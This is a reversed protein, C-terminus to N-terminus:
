EYWLPMLKRIRECRRRGVPWSQCLQVYYEQESLEVKWDKEAISEDQKKNLGTGWYHIRRTKTKGQAMKKSWVAYPDIKQPNEARNVGM